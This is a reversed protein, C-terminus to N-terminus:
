SHFTLTKIVVPVTDSALSRGIDLYDGHEVKIQDICIISQRVQMAHLTQGLVKAHDTELVLVIPLTPDVRNNMVNMVREALQQIAHFKMYPLGSLYLAFNQGERYADYLDLAQTITDEMQPLRTDL